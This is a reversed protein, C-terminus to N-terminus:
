GISRVEWELTKIIEWDRIIKVKGNSWDITDSTNIEVTETTTEVRTTLKKSFEYKDPTEKTFEM